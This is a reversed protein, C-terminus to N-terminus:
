DFHMIEKRFRSSQQQIRGSSFFIDAGIYTVLHHSGDSASVEQCDGRASSLTLASGEQGGRWHERRRHQRRLAHRTEYQVRAHRAGTQVSAQTALRLRVVAAEAAETRVLPSSAGAVQGTLPGLTETRLELTETRLPALTETPSAGRSVSWCLTASQWPM